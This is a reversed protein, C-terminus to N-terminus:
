ATAATEGNHIALMKRLWPPPNGKLMTQIRGLVSEISEPNSLKVPHVNARVVRAAAPGGIATVFMLASGEIAKLKTGLRDESDEGLKSHGEEKTVVEFTVEELFRYGETDVDFFMFLRTSAFHGNVNERDQTAIAVRM